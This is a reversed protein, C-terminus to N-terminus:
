AWAVVIRAADAPVALDIGTIDKFRRLRNLITNRHCFLAEATAGVSGNLLFCGVTERLRDIEEARCCSDLKAEYLSGLDVGADGLRTRALRAWHEDITVPGLDSPKALESLAAAVRAATALGMLGDAAYVLGCPITALETPNAEHTGFMGAVAPWFVYTHEASEHLFVPNSRGPFAALQRLKGACQGTGAAIAYPMNAGVNFARAFRERTEVNRGQAGFLASIFEQRVGAEQQAMDVRASLYSSHIAAAYDDVVRWVDEARSAVLPADGPNSLRLLTSWIIPFDLRVASMLAEAAVGQHARRDGLGSAFEVMLPYHEPGAMSNLILGISVVASNQLEERTVSEGAYGAIGQVRVVFEEQMLSLSGKLETVLDIWRMDGTQPEAIPSRIPDIPIHM